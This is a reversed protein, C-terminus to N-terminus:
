PKIEVLSGAGRTLISERTAADPIWRSLAAFTGDYDVLTEHQTHPWDSGWLLREAGFHEVLVPAVTRAVREGAEVGGCRYAAALKVWVRRSDATSLLYRFGEDQLPAAPDPRGFHDVCVRVGAALVPKMMIPLLHAEGHVEVHWERRKLEALVKPWSARTLDTTSVGALNFRIGIAGQAQFEDLQAPTVEADVVIVARLRDPYKRVAALMHSNDTGLFSPQTLLGMGLGHADLHAIFQEATARYAPTYRRPTVFPLDPAFVHAHGDVRPTM